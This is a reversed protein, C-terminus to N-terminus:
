FRRSLSLGLGTVSYYENPWILIRETPALKKRVIRDYYRGELSLDWGPRLNRWQVGAGAYYGHAPTTLEYRAFGFFGTFALHEGTRLRYDLARVGYMNHGHLNDLEARMGFDSRRSVSKRIGVGYHVGHENTRRTPLVYVDEEYSMHGAYAGAEVFREVAPAARAAGPALVPSVTGNRADGSKYLTMSLRGFGKGYMDRGLDLGAALEFSRWPASATLTLLHARRYDTRARVSNYAANQATRYRLMYAAGSASQLDLQLMHSQGGASDGFSRWDAGWNGLVSRYNTLGDQYLHHTYWVDEWNSFEYRLQANPRFRPLFVGASLAGNGFRYNQSHFTDEAAYEVYAVVPKPGPVALSSFIAVQQNGFEETTGVQEATSSGVGVMEKFYQKLSFHRGGGYQLLRAAGMSWGRAPEISFQVGSVGPRGSILQTAGADLRIRSSESLRGAFVEYRLRARTLPVSNSFTAALITPAETSILFASDRMPSFWHDRYGLDLQLRAGGVSLYTGSPNVRGHYAVAGAHAALHDGGQAYAQVAGQWHADEPAGRQNPQTVEATRAITAEFSAMGLAARGMWPAIERQVQMCLAEDAACAEPMAREIDALAIPRRMITAGAAAMLREVDHELRPELNLPLYGTIAAHAAATALLCVGALWARRM